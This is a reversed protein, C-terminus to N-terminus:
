KFNVKNIVQHDIMKRIEEYGKSIEDIEDDEDGYMAIWEKNVAKYREENPQM